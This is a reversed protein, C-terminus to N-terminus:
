NKLNIEFNNGLSGPPILKGRHLSNNAIFHCLYGVVGHVVGNLNAFRKDEKVNAIYHGLEYVLKDKEDFDFDYPYMEALENFRNGLEQIQMDLVTNFNNVMYHDRNTIGTKRRRYKPDVYEAKMDVMEIDYKDCFSTVDELLSDLGSMNSAGDYGQGRVRGISLNHRAFLKDIAAKLSLATTEMVHVLGIFREKVFGLKDVYRLVMALQENKSIDRSEDVLISFVNDGLEEFIKKLVEEAFCNCLENQISPSTMQNNGPANSLIVKGIEENLEGFVKLFEIFNGRYLSEESEDHGRFALSGNLLAKTLRASAHLRIRYQKKKKQIDTRKDIAVHISQAQNLLDEGRKREKNHFSNCKGVHGSFKEWARNWCRVEESLFADNQGCEKFLYCHLCYAKDAKVNYELWNGFEGTYWKVNFHRLKSGYNTQPFDHETPQCPGRLLYARKIEDKQSPHYSSIPQRESPDWPLDNLDVKSPKSSSSSSGLNSPETQFYIKINMVGQIALLM